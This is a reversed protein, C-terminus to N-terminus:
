ELSNIPVRQIKGKIKKFTIKTKEALYKYFNVLWTQSSDTPGKLNNFIEEDSVNFVIGPMDNPHNEVGHNNLHKLDPKAPHITIVEDIKKFFKDENKLEKDSLINIKEEPKQFSITPKKEKEISSNLLGSIDSFNKDM